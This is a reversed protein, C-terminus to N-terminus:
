GTEGEKREEEVFLTLGDVRRVRVRRGAAIPGDAAQAKWLAGKVLVQGDPDVDGRTVGVLGVLGEQGMSSRERRARMAVTMGFGFFLVSGLLVFSILWPSVDLEPSVGAFLLFSGVGLALTGGITFVGLGATFVDIAFLALGLLVLLLAALNVPLVSLAYFALILSVAGSIGAIGFGPQSIEFVIAWFGLVLLLFAVSPDTVAHLIRTLLGPKHFRVVVRGAEGEEAVTDVTREAGGAVEFSRGDMAALVDPISSEVSDIVEEDLAERATLSRSERVADEAFEVNRGRREALSRLFATADNVAKDEQAGELNGGLDVPHAAGLNTGDAMVAFHSAYVLFVGASAARAGPPGVWVAVPVPSRIIEQVMARMSVDVGGPTDLQIVIAEAGEDIASSVRTSLYGALTPDIVGRLDIVEVIRADDQAVVPWTPALALAGAALATALRKM